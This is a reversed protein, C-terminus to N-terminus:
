CYQLSKAPGFLTPSQKRGQQKPNRATTTRGEQESAIDSLAVLLTSDVARGYYLLCGIIAQLERKAALSLQPATDPGKAYQIKAGYQPKQWAHPAHQPTSPIAHEFRQLVREIYGPMSIDVTRNEYDWTLHLGCYQEGNWDIKMEYHQKLVHILHDM